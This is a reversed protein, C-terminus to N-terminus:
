HWTSGFEITNLSVFCTFFFFLLLFSTFQLKSCIRTYGLTLFRMAIKILSCLTHFHLYKNKKIEIGSIKVSITTKWQFLFQIKCNLNILFLKDEIEKNFEAIKSLVHLFKSNLLRLFLYMYNLHNKINPILVLVYILKNCFLFKKVLLYIKSNRFIM